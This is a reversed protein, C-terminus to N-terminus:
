REKNIFNFRIGISNDEPFERHYSTDLSHGSFHRMYLDIGVKTALGLESHLGIHRFQRQNTISQITNDWYIIKHKFGFNLNVFYKPSEKNPLLYNDNTRVAKEIELNLKYPKFGPIEAACLSFSFLLSILVRM